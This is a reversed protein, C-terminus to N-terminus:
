SEGTSLHSASESSFVFSWLIIALSVLLLMENVVYSAYGDMLSLCCVLTTLIKQIANHKWLVDIDVTEIVFKKILPQKNDLSFTCSIHFFFNQIYLTAIIQRWVYM